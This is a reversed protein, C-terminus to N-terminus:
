VPRDTLWNLRRYYNVADRMAQAAPRPRYNLESRARASSFFMHKGALRLGDITLLPERGTLRAVGEAVAAVPWLPARPLRIRPPRGGTLAAIEELIERLSLNDGGLIYRRGPRGANAALLHGAAVDDVHVVNLGTDVYAPMRGLAADLVIRGTPTPKHDGPGMPTSPNVIVTDLGGADAAELVAAEALYKSRKYHGIMDELAVPTAEDAPEGGANLGLTAVSSTYVLRKVGARAAAEVLARSGAVNVAYIREPDPVWLRYDAAVHFVWDMDAVAPALTDPELLDGVVTELTLDALNRRDSGPRVLARVAHGADLLARAVAAGVFGSAGTVLAKM